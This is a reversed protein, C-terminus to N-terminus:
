LGSGSIATALRSVGEELLSRPCGIAMRAFGEGQPGFSHGSKLALRAERVLFEELPQTALGLKRFDLWVMFTAEPKILKVQPIRSAFADELYRANDEVYGVAQDLWEHGSRYAAETAVATFSNIKQLFLQDIQRCYEARLGDNPIVVFGNTVSPINFTKAASTCSVSLQALEHSLSCFPTFSHGGFVFDGHVEDAMVKVNRRLCIDAVRQLEDRQWVRGVPNHPNCLLLVKTRPNAAKADLDDFDIEYRGNKLRLPNTVVSRHNMEIVTQFQFYVPPQIIVGDGESTLQTLLLAVASLTSQSFCLYREEIHWNHRRANWEIVARFMADPRTEYSYLGQHARSVIQQQVVEPADFDMDAVWFPLVDDTGFKDRLILPSWKESSSQANDSITDFDTM